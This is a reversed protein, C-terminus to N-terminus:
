TQHQKVLKKGLEEAWAITKASNIPASIVKGLIRMCGDSAGVLVPKVKPYNAMAAEIYEKAILDRIQSENDKTLSTKLSSLYCFCIFFAVKKEGFDQELLRLAEKYIKGTRVGSGIIINNYPAINPSPQKKLNVLDVELNFKTRLVDAITQAATQTAGGKTMYALLTKNHAM